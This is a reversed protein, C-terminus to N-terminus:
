CVHSLLQAEEEITVFNPIYYVHEVSGVAWESFKQHFAEIEESMDYEFRDIVYDVRDVPTSLSNQLESALGAEDAVKPSKASNSANKRAEKMMQGFNLSTMTYQHGACLLTDLPVWFGSM